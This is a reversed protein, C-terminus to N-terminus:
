SLLGAAALYIKAFIADDILKYLLQYSGDDQKRKGMRAIMSRGKLKLSAILLPLNATKKASVAPV